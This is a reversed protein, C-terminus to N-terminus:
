IFTTTNTDETSKKKESLKQFSGHLSKLFLMDADDDQSETAQLYKLLFVEYTSQDDQKRKLKPTVKFNSDGPYSDSIPATEQFTETVSTKNIDIFNSHSEQSKGVSNLFSLEHFLNCEPLKKNGAGKQQYSRKKAHM